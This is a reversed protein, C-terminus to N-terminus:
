RGSPGGVGTTPDTPSLSRRAGEHSLAGVLESAEFFRERLWRHGPDSGYRPHWIMSLAFPELPLPPELVRLGLGPALARAVRESVTLVRDSRAVMSLAVQFYPVARGVRRTLGHDALLEDVYGGPRGRPAVQVHDLAVYEDLDLADGVSPHDDRVVCVLRDTIIPRMRLEPPLESGLAARLVVAM